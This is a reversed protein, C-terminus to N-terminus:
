SPRLDWQRAISWLASFGFGMTFTTEDSLSSEWILPVPVPFITCSYSNDGIYGFVTPIHWAAVGKPLTYPRDIEARPYKELEPGAACGATLSLIVLAFIIRFNSFNGTKARPM